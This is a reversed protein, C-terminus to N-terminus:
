LGMNQFMAKVQTITPLTDKIALFRWITGQLYQSGPAIDASGIVLRATTSAIGGNTIFDAWTSYYSGSPVYVNMTYHNQNIILTVTQLSIDVIFGIAYDVNSLLSIGTRTAILFPPTSPSRNFIQIVIESSNLYVSIEATGSAPYISFLRHTASLSANFDLKFIMLYSLKALTGSAKYTTSHPVSILKNAGNFNIGKGWKSDIVIGPSSELTGTNSNGSSDTITASATNMSNSDYHIAPSVGMPLIFDDTITSQEIISSWDSHTNTNVERAKARCYYSNLESLGIVEVSLSNSSLNDYGPIKNTFGIDTAVDILSGLAPHCNTLNLTFRDMLVNSVTLTPVPVILDSVNGNFSNSTLDGIINGSTETLPLNFIQDYYSGPDTLDQELTTFTNESEDILAGADQELSFQFVMSSSYTVPKIEGPNQPTVSNDVILDTM